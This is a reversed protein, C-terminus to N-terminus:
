YRIEVRGARNERCELQETSDIISIDPSCSENRDGTGKDAKYVAVEQDDRETRQLYCSLCIRTSSTLIYGSAIATCANQAHHTMAKPISTMIPQHLVLQEVCVTRGDPPIGRYEDCKRSYPSYPLNNKDTYSCPIYSTVVRFIPGRNCEYEHHKEEKPVDAGERGGLLERM